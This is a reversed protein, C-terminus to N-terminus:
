HLKLTMMRVLLLFVEEPTEALRNKKGLSSKIHFFADMIDIMKNINATNRHSNFGDLFEQDNGICSDNPTTDDHPRCHKIMTYVFNTDFLYNRIKEGDIFHGLKHCFMADPLSKMVDSMTYLLPSM